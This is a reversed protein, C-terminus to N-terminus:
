PQFTRQVRLLRADDPAAALAEALLGQAEDHHGAQWLAEGLHAAVEPDSLLQYARKLQVIAPELRGQKFYLWGLSDIIAPDDPRM